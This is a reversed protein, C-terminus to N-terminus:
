RALDVKTLLLTAKKNPWSEKQSAGKRAEVDRDEKLCSGTLRKGRTARSILLTELPEPVGATGFVAAILSGPFCTTELLLFPTLSYEVGKVVSVLRCNSSRM